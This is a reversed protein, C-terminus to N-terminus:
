IAFVKAQGQPKILQHVVMALSIPATVDGASKRRIIRWASDNQKAACNNMQAVLSEQGSHVIKRNVLQDLLDSCAQYFITGSCDVTAAGSMQLRQAITATTYKDFCIMRPFYKDAWLKVEVAIKQEDVAV